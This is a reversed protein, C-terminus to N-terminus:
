ASGGKGEEVVDRTVQVRVAHPSPEIRSGFRRAYVQTFEAGFFLILSSYYVWMLLVVLSGAAGYASGVTSNGLYLGIGLKGINFLVSTALAGIMVDRWSIEADPLYRFIVAFLLAIVGISIVFNVVQWLIDAGPFQTNLYGDLASLAASLILSTLLLFGIGLVMGLSLFRTRVFGMVGQGPKPEVNWIANLSSQLQGFVTTAGFLLLGAGVSAALIGGQKGGSQEFVSTLSEAANPGALDRIQALIEKQAQAEGFIVGAIGVAIIVLPALSFIAYFSLAAAHQMSNDGIFESVTDRLLQWTTKVPIFVRRTRRARGQPSAYFSGM